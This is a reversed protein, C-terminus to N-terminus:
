HCQHLGCFTRAVVEGFPTWRDALADLDDDFLDAYRDLTMAASAHGPMRQVVKVNAGASMALSAATHRLEHPTLGPEGIATAARDFWARRAPATACSAAGPAPFPSITAARAPWPWPSTTSWSGRCRYRGAITSSPTGRVLQSGSIETVAESIDLRRRLLDVHRVCLAALESWRLDRYALVLVPLRGDGAEDALEDDQRATLYRRRGERLPPLDAGLAPNTPLRRDRVALGLIGSLVGHARRVSGGVTRAPGARSALWAQIEGHEIRFLPVDGWRPLVHLAVGDHRARTTPKM